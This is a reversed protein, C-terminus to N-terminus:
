GWETGPVWEIGAGPWAEQLVDVRETKTEQFLVVDPHHKHVLARIERM